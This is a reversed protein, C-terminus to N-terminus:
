LYRKAINELDGVMYFPLNILRFPRKGQSTVVDNVAFQGSWVRIAVDHSSHEMFSHISRLHSNQGSKVEIPVLMSDIQWVFDVEASEGGKGKMWFARRQSIRNNITLLEQAVIHEAVRGRWAASVSLANIIESRIGAAYNVLGTDIWILKPRRKQETMLPAEASTTPYVLEMLMAKQLLRFAEGVEKSKYLSGAFGNMSVTEGAKLWGQDLIFRVVHSLKDKRVYKEVDDRYSQLLTEYVDDMALMDGHEAYRQVVEPMGGVVMYQGFLSMLREHVTAAYQENYMIDQLNEHGTAGVFEYFSCPRVPLFQVRGVPFSVNVDVVNELLSGASVVHLDPYQEYFYRLKEITKPSNQIEDIFVLTSGEKRVKGSFSFLLRVTDEMPIDMEFLRRHELGELNFYLYNDFTGGFENIVTTKGVQRAGRLVLPKHFDSSKWKELDNIITRKFM